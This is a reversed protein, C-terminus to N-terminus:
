STSLMRVAHEALAEMLRARERAWAPTRVLNAAFFPILAMGAFVGVVLLSKRPQGSAYVVAGVIASMALLMFGLGNLAVADEKLDSFRLQEGHETPELSIHLNGHSWERLGGSTTVRGQVGFATRFESILREWERDTPARPLEAVQSVGIPLGFSKRVL